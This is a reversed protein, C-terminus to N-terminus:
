FRGNLMTPLYTIIEALSMYKAFRNPGDTRLPAAESSRRPEEAFGDRRGGFWIAKLCMWKKENIGSNHMLM